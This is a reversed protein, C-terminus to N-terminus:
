FISVQRSLVVPIRVKHIVVPIGKGNNKVSILNAAADVDVELLSMNPDRQKNDAANVLIEDYIKYLGPTYTIEREVIRGNQHVFMTKTDRETSGIYTDPRLLIHELQTKKQYIEEVTKKSTAATNTNNNSTTTTTTNATANLVNDKAALPKKKTAAAAKTSKAAGKAAGAGRAKVSATTKKAVVVVNEEELSLDDDDSFQEDESERDDLDFMSADSESEM